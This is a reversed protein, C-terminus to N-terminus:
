PLELRYDIAHAADIKWQGNEMVYTDVWSIHEYEIEQTKSNRNTIHNVYSLLGTNGVFQLTVNEYKVFIIKWDDPTTRNKIYDARTFFHDKANFTFNRSLITDFAGQSLSQMALPWKRKVKMIAKADATRHDKAHSILTIQALDVTPTVNDDLTLVTRTFVAGDKDKVPEAQKCCCIGTLTFLLIVQITRM